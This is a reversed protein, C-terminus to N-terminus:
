PLLKQLEAWRAMQCSDQERLAFRDCGLFISSAREPGGWIQLCREFPKRRLKALHACALQGRRDSCSVKIHTVEGRRSLEVTATSSALLQVRARGFGAVSHSGGARGSVVVLCLAAVSAVIPKLRTAPSAERAVPSMRALIHPDARHLRVAVCKGWAVQDEDIEGAGLPLEDGAGLEGRRHV